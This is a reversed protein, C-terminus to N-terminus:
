CDRECEKYSGDECGNLRGYGSPDGISDDGTWHGTKISYYIEATYGEPETNQEESIDCLTDSSVTKKFLEISINVYEVDDAVNATATWHIDDLYPSDQWLPSLFEESNILVKVFFDPNNLLITEDLTRISIIDVTVKIDVLPDFDEYFGREDSTKFYNEDDNKLPVNYIDNKTINSFFGSAPVSSLLFISIILIM